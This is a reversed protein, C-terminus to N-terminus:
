VCIGAHMSNLAVYLCAAHLSKNINEAGVHSCRSRGIHGISPIQKKTEAGVHSCSSEVWCALQWAMCCCGASLNLSTDITHKKFVISCTSVHINCLHRFHGPCPLKWSIRHCRKYDIRYMMAMRALSEMHHM